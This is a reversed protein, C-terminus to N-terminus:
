SANSSSVRSDPGQGSKRQRYLVVGISIAALVIVAILIPVVPSSGGTSHSVNAGSQHQPVEKGNSIGDGAGGGGGGGAGGKPTTGGGGGTTPPNGNKGSGSSEEKSKKHGESEPEEARKEAEGSNETGGNGEAGSAKAPPNTEAKHHGTPSKGSKEETSSKAPSEIKPVPVKYIAENSSEEARAAVPFLVLALLALV